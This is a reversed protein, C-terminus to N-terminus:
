EEEGNVWGLTKGEDRIAMMLAFKDANSELSFGCGGFIEQLSEAIRKYGDSSEMKETHWDIAREPIDSERNKLFSKWARWGGFIRDESIVIM